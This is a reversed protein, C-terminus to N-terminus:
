QERRSLAITPCREALEYTGFRVSEIDLMETLVSRLAPLTPFTYRAHNGRYADITDIESRSWATRKALISRTPICREFANWIEDVAVTSHDPDVLSMALRWKFAHFGSIRGALADACVADTSESQEPRVFSRIVLRGKPCLLRALEGVLLRTQETLALVNFAGDGTIVSFQRSALPLHEWCGRVPWSWVRQNEAWVTEIMEASQDIAVVRSGPTWQRQVLEPTVGLVLCWPNAQTADEVHEIEEALIQLDEPSPKLPAGIANWQTAHRKWVSTSTRDM